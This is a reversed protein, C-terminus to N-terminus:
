GKSQLHKESSKIDPVEKATWHNLSQIELATTCSQDRTLSTLDWMCHLWFFFFFSLTMDKQGGNGHDEWIFDSMAVTPM